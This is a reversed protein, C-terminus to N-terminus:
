PSEPITEKVMTLLEDAKKLYESDSNKLEELLPIANHPDESLLYAQALYWKARDNLTNVTLKEAESLSKVASHAQRDVYYSVGLYLWWKGEQPNM